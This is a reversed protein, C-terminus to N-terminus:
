RPLRLIGLCTTRYQQRSKDTPVTKTPSSLVQKAAKGTQKTKLIRLFFLLSEITWDYKKQIM